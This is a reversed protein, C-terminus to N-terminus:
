FQGDLVVQIVEDPVGIDLVKVAGCLAKASDITHYPKKSVFSCNLTASITFQSDIVGEDCDMGSPIDVALIRCNITNIVQIIERIPSRAPGKGGTGLLADVIWEVSQGDVFALLERQNKLLNTTEIHIIECKTKKLIEFNTLADGSLKSPSGVLIVRTSISRIRLHRAIVFGDGGNNGPGCAIVVPGNLQNLMMCDVCQRGANEMLMLSHIGFQEIAVKDIMRSQQRNLVLEDRNIM